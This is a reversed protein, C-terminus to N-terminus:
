RPCSMNPTHLASCIGDYRSTRSRKCREQRSKGRTNILESSEAPRNLVLNSVDQSTGDGADHHTRIIDPGGAPEGSRSVAAGELTSM